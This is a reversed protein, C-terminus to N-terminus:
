AADEEPVLRLGRSRAVVAKIKSLDERDKKTLLEAAAAAAIPPGGRARRDCGTAHGLRDAPHFLELGRQARDFLVAVKLASGPMAKCPRDALIGPLELRQMGRLWGESSHHQARVDADHEVKSLELAEPPIRAVSTGDIDLTAEQGRKFGALYLHLEVQRQARTLQNWPPRRM